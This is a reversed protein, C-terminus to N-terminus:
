PGTGKIKFIGSWESNYILYQTGDELEIIYDQATDADFIEELQDDKLIRNNPRATVKINAM